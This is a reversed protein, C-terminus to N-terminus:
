AGLLAGHMHLARQITGAGHALLRQLPSRVRNHAAGVPMGTGLRVRMGPVHDEPLRQVGDCM